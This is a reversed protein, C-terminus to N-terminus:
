VRSESGGFLELIFADSNAPRGLFEELSDLEERSGGPLLISKRYRDGRTADLPDEKFVTRYMDAAFVLSYSYGYYGVDYGRILHAFSGQGASRKGGKFLSIRDKMDNWVATVDQQDKHTHVHLDFRAFFVQRLYFLGVNVYRRQVIKKILEPSLPENTKYYRSMKELVKPEWCWNELMQSPAEMFDRAVNTGHFRAFQTRSLLEHFVHGMEHFFTVVDDHRMLAPREPTPKALNAVMASLPYLRRGDSLLCGHLLPWVAAHSYKSARPFLDLYCYGMFDSEDKADEAWVAFMQADPHWTQADKVEHFRVRLLDQYIELIAPVVVSVPFYEKVLADDLSLTKEIYLRDYYRYDWQYLEGDFPEGIAKLEDAKLKLLTEREQAGLPRLKQELDSLFNDGSKVMEVETKYDAWTNYGLLAAIKRRLELARDLLPANLDLRSDFSEWARRRTEASEAYKFLPIIDPTRHTVDYLEKSGEERKPYGSIVDEPVGQARRPYLNEENFNKNFELCVQSLEKKWETLRERDAEPLFLGARTGDQVMKEVLRQEEQKLEKGSSEINKQAAVKANYVDIRMSSEVGFDRVLIEAENSADRLEKSTSVHQYFSLPETAVSLDSDSRALVLFVTDFNCKSAPLKAVRDQVERDKDIAERTLRIVDGPTHTWIPPPQPPTLGVVM